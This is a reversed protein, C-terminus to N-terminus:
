HRRGHVINHESSMQPASLASQHKTATERDREDNWVPKFGPQAEKRLDPTRPFNGPRIKSAMVIISANADPFESGDVVM